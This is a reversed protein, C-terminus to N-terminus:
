RTNEPNKGLREVEKNKNLVKDKAKNSDKPDQREPIYTGSWLM